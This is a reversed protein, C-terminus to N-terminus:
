YSVVHLRSKGFSNLAWFTHGAWSFYKTPPPLSFSDQLRGAGFSHNLPWDHLLDWIKLYQLLLQITVAYSIDRVWRRDTLEERVTRKNRVCAPVAGWLNPALAQINCGNIWRDLWFLARDGM